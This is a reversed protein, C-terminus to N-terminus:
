QAGIVQPIIAIKQDQSLDSYGGQQYGLYQNFM